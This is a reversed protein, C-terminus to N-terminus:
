FVPVRSLSQIKLPGSTEGMILNIEHNDSTVSEPRITVYFLLIKSYM